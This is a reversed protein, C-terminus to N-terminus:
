DAPWPASAPVAEVSVLRLLLVRSRFQNGHGYRSNTQRMTSALGDSTGPPISVPKPGDFELVAIVHARGDKDLISDMKRMLDLSTSKRFDDSYDVWSSLENKACSLSYFSMIEGGRRYIGETELVHHDYAGPNISAQCYSVHLPAHTPKSQQTHGIIPALLLLCFFRAIYRKLHLIM